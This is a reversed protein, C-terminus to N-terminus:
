TLPRMPQRRFGVTTSLSCARLAEAGADTANDDEGDVVGVSSSAFTFNWRAV